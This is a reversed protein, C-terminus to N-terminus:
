FQNAQLSFNVFDFAYKVATSLFRFIAEILLKFFEGENPSSDVVKSDSTWYALGNRRPFPVLTLCYFCVSYIKDHIM